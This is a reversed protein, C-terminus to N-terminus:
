SVVDHPEVCNGVTCSSHNNHNLRTVIQYIPVAKMVIKEADSQELLGMVVVDGSVRNLLVANTHEQRFIGIIIYDLVICKHLVQQM